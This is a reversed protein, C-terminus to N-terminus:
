RDGARRISLGAGVAFYPAADTLYKRDISRHVTFARFPESLRTPVGMREELTSRLGNLKAGGGSLYIMKLGDAEDSPVVGYLSVTRRVEEALEECSPRLAADFDLAGNDQLVGTTKFAEAAETEIGLQRAVTDTFYAGGLSLDGTFISIGNQLLTISTYQSGIHILAVVGNETEGGYNAEYMNELAFYDVDMVAPALGAEEIAETYSNVIEKKVAVLLVDMKNGDESEQVVQYDLNVNELSDPIINQAEFEINAELEAPEQRPMQLKKMIVARGPVAAIVQKAKVGNENTLRRIVDVVAGSDVVMNNQIAQDPLPLIGLKLIRYGSKDVAAEVMKISSSGIDLAVYGDKSAFPNFSPLSLNKLFSLMSSNL